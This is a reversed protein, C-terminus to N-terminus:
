RSSPAAGRPLTDQWRPAGNSGMAAAAPGPAAPSTHSMGAATSRSGLARFVHVPWAIGTVDVPGASACDVDDGVLRATRESLLIEGPAAASELRSALNVTRGLATYHLREDSGFDGVTCAGSAIGWRLQVDAPLGARRCAANLAPLADRMALAMHVCGRADTERSGGQGDGFLVMVGDGMFKDVTGGHHHAIATMERQYLDLVTAIEEPELRETLQTFGVVDAFCVTLWRRGPTRRVAAVDLLLDVDLDGAAIGEDDLLAQRVGPALYRGLRSALRAMARRSNNGRALAIGFSRRAEHGLWALAMAVGGLWLLAGALLPPSWALRGVAVSSGAAGDLATLAVTGALVGAGAAAIFRWVGEGGQVAVRVLLIGFIGTGALVAPLTATLVAGSVAVELATVVDVTGPVRAGRCRRRRERRAPESAWRRSQWGLPSVVLYVAAVSALWQSHGLAVAVGGLLALGGYALRRPLRVRAPLDSIAGAGRVRGGFVGGDEGVREGAAAM